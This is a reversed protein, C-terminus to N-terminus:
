TTTTTTAAAAADRADAALAAFSVGSFPVNADTEVARRAAAVGFSVASALDHGAALAAASGAVLADGAGVLSRV